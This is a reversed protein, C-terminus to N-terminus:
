VTPIQLFSHNVIHLESSRNVCQSCLDYNICERCKYRYGLLPEMKCGDCIVDHVMSETPTVDLNTSKLAKEYMDAAEDFKRQAHFVEGLKNLVDAKRDPREDNAHEIMQLATSYHSIADDYKRLSQYSYAINIKMDVACPSCINSYISLAREYLSIATVYDKGHLQYIIALKNLANATEVHDIGFAKGVISLIRRYQVIADDFNELALCMEGLNELTKNLDLQFHESMIEQIQLAREFHTKAIDYKGQSKYAIGLYIM